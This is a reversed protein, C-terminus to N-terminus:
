RIPWPATVLAAIALIVVAVWIPARGIGAAIAIGLAILVLLTYLTLIM